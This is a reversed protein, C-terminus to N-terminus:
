VAFMELACNNCGYGSNPLMETSWGLPNEHYWERCILTSRRIDLPNVSWTPYVCAFNMCAVSYRFGVSGAGYRTTESMSRGFRNVTLPRHSIGTPRPRRKPDFRGRTSLKKM